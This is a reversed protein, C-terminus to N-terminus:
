GRGDAETALDKAKLGEEQKWVFSAPQSSALLGSSRTTIQWSRTRPAHLTTAALLRPIRRLHTCVDIHMLLCRRLPRGFQSAGTGTVSHTRATGHTSSTYTRALTRM